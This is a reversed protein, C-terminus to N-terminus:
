AIRVLQVHSVLSVHDEQYELVILETSVQLADKVCVVRFKIVQLLSVAFHVAQVNTATLANVVLQDAAGMEFNEQHAPKV